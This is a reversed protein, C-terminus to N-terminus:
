ALAAFRIGTLVRDIAAWLAPDADMLDGRHRYLGGLMLLIAATVPKPVTAATWAPDAKAALYDLILAEAQDLKLQLDAEDPDGVPMTPVELHDKAQQLTVLTAM